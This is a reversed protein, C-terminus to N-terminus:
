LGQEKLQQDHGIADRIESPTRKGEGNTKYPKCMPCSSKKPAKFRRQTLKSKAM